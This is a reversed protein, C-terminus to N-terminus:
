QVEYSTLKLTFTENWNANCINCKVPQWATDSEVKMSGVEFDNSDCDVNPCAATSNIFEENSKYEIYDAFYETVQECIYDVVERRANVNWECAFQSAADEIVAKVPSIDVGWWVTNVGWWDVSLDDLPIERPSVRPQSKKCAEIVATKASSIANTVLPLTHIDVTKNM